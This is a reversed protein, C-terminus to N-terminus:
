DWNLFDSEIIKHSLSPIEHIIMFSYGMMAFDRDFHHYTFAFIVSMQFYYNEKREKRNKRGCM